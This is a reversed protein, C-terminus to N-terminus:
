LLYNPLVYGALDKVPLLLHENMQHRKMESAALEAVIVAAPSKETTEVEPFSQFIWNAKSNKNVVM